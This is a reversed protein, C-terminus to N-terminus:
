LTCWQNFICYIRLGYQYSIFASNWLEQQIKSPRSAKQLTTGWKMGDENNKEHCSGVIQHKKHACHLIELYWNLKLVCDNQICHISQRKSIEDKM